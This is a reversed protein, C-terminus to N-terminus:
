RAVTAPASAGAPAAATGLGVRRAGAPPNPFGQLAADILGTLMQTDGLGPASARSEFVVRGSALERVLVNVHQVTRPQSFPPFLSGIGLSVGGGGGGVGLGVGVSSGGFAGPAATQEVPASVQVAFRPAADDRRLGARHLAPDALAEVQLQSPQGAQSPLREFRYTAPSPLAQLGSFAQVTAENTGPTACGALTAALVVAPLLLLRLSASM